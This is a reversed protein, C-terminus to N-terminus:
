DWFGFKYSIVGLVSIAATEARLVTKGLHVPIWNRSCALSLENDTFDGEPGIMVATSGSKKDELDKLSKAHEKPTCILKTEVWGLSDLVENLSWIKDVYPLRSIGCQKAAEETIKRWKNIRSLQMDQKIKVVSNEAALPYIDTVGLETAKEIIIDMGGHASSSKVLSQVIILSRATLSTSRDERILKEISINIFRNKKNISKIKGAYENGKGDFFFVSDGEKYRLVNIIHHYEPQLIVAKDGAINQPLVYFRHKHM